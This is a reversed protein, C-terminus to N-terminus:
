RRRGSLGFLGLGVLLATSPEPALIWGAAVPDFLTSGADTWTSTFNTSADYYPTGTTTGLSKAYSLDSGSFDAGDLSMHHMTANVFSVGRLNANTAVADTLDAGTLDYPEGYSITEGSSGSNCKPIAFGSVTNAHGCRALVMQAGRLIANSFNTGDIHASPITTSGWVTTGSINIHNQLNFGPLISGSLDASSLNTFPLNLGPIGTFNSNRLDASELDLDFLATVGLSHLDVGPGFDINPPPLHIGSGCGPALGLSVCHSPIPDIITGDIMQYSGAWTPLAYLTVALLCFLSRM